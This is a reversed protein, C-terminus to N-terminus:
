LLPRMASVLKLQILIHNWKEKATSVVLKKWKKGQLYWCPQWTTCLLFLWVICQFFGFFLWVICQFFGFFALSCVLFLVFLGFRILNNPKINFFYSLFSTLFGFCYIVNATKIMHNLFKDFLPSVLGYFPHEFVRGRAFKWERQKKPKGAPPKM